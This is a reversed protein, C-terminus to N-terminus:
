CPLVRVRMPLPIRRDSHESQDGLQDVAQLEAAEALKSFHVETGGAISGLGLFFM